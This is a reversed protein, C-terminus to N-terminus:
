WRPQTFTKGAAARWFVEKTASEINLPFGIGAQAHVFVNSPLVQSFSGFPEFIALRNGLGETEKGTPFTFESGASVISGRASSDFVVHKFAVAIDGLGHNWGGPWQVVSFPVVIEYQSRPGLRHEYAFRTLVRDTYSTPAATTMFAENDPFAKETVLARPLNLRGRPWAENGCFGRVYAIVRDIEDDSLAEGFAPMNADLGRARGGRHVTAIWDADPESTSFRCDTFDPLPTTFGVVSAPVGMGDPGHCAVCASQYIESGTTAAQGYDAITRAHSVAAPGLVGVV